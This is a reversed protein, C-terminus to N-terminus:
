QNAGLPHHVIVAYRGIATVADGDLATGGDLHIREVIGSDADFEVDAVTGLEHGRVSLVRGGLLEGGGDHAEDDGIDDSTRVTVADSGFGQVKDWALISGGKHKGVRVARVRHAAADVVFGDVRGVETATSTDLVSRHLAESFRM